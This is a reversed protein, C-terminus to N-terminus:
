YRKYALYGKITGASQLTTATPSATVTFVVSVGVARIGRAHYDTGKISVDHTTDTWPTALLPVNASRSTPRATLTKL